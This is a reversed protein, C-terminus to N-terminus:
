VKRLVSGGARVCGCTLVLRPLAGGGGDPGVDVDADVYRRRGLGRSPRRTCCRRGAPRASRGM